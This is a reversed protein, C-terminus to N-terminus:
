EIAKLKPVGQIKVIIPEKIHTNLKLVSGEELNILDKITIVTEGLSAELKVPVNKMNDILNEKVSVIDIESLVKLIL